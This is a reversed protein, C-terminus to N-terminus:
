ADALGIRLLQRAFENILRLRLLDQRIRFWLNELKGISAESVSFGGGDNSFEIPLSVHNGLLVLSDPLGMDASAPLLFLGAKNFAGPNSGSANLVDSRFQKATAEKTINGKIYSEVDVIQAVTVANCKHQFIDCDPTMIVGSAIMVNDGRTAETGIQITSFDVEQTSGSDDRSEFRNFGLLTAPFPIRRLVTGTRLEATSVTEYPKHTEVWSAV